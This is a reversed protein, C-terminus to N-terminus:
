ENTLLMKIFPLPMLIYKVATIEYAIWSNRKRMQNKPGLSSWRSYSLQTFGRLRDKYVSQKHYQLLKHHQLLSAIKM